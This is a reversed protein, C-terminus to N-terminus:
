ENCSAATDSVAIDLSTIQMTLPGQSSLSLTTAPSAVCGLQLVSRQWGSRLERRVIDTIDVGTSGLEITVREDGGALVQYSLELALSAVSSPALDAESGQILLSAPGTWSLALSDEQVDRDAPRVSLRDGASVGRSDVVAVDGAADRLSIRLAGVADGFEVIKRRSDGAGALDLGESLVGIHGDDDYSLGYGYEFQPDYDADGANVSAQQPSRPWSFSLRGSVDFRPQGDSGAILVDAIGAGESGPLWAVVFANSANIEPNVWLPRGSIFLSVTPIGADRFTQLLAMGDNSSYDVDPRDGVGEAYPEEGFVVIAVDPRDTYRGDVSLTATGGGTEIADSLGEYISTANPFHERLNETGQWNLTWGGTQKGINHAGDGTVLVNLSPPLPLLGQENKLLVLSKRVADRAIARHGPAGLLSFNGAHKRSSPRGATFVGARMKVRLIRAVAEDLRQMSIEGSRVQELTAKYIGRWSDPAMFMDLGANFSAACSTNTCGAVQGHGNWDGVVFGDFGLRGVLVDTLMLKNGHMKQGHYSNFSAM